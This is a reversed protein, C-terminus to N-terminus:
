IDYVIICQNIHILLGQPEVLHEHLCNCREHGTFAVCDLVVTETMHRIGNALKPRELMVISLEKLGGVFCCLLQVVSAASSLAVM